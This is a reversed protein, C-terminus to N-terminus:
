DASETSEIETVVSKLFGVLAQKKAPDSMIKKFAEERMLQELRTILTQKDKLDKLLPVRNMIEEPEFDKISKFFITEDQLPNAEDGTSIPVEISPKVKNFLGGLTYTSKGEIVMEDPDTPCNEELPILMATRDPNLFQIGVQADIGNQSIAGINDKVLKSM